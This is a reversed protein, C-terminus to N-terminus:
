SDRRNDSSSNNNNSNMGGAVKDLGEFLSIPVLGRVRAIPNIVEYYTYNDDNIVYFFDGKKFSLEQAYQATYDAVARVVKKPPLNFVSAPHSSGRPGSQPVTGPNQPNSHHHNPGLAPLTKSRQPSGFADRISSLM